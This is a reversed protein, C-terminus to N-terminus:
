FRRAGALKAAAREVGKWLEQGITVAAQAKKADFSKRVFPRSRKGTSFELVRWYYPDLLAEAATQRLKAYARKSLRRIAVFASAEFDRRVGRTAKIMRRLLGAVRRENPEQLVPVTDQMEKAIVMAGKAVAEGMAKEQLEVPLRRMAALVQSLGEIRMSSHLGSDSM